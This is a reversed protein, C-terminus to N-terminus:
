YSKFSNEGMQKDLWKTFEHFVELEHAEQSFTEM